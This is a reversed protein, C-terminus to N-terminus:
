AVAGAAALAVTALHRSNQECKVCSKKKTSVICQCMGREAKNWKKRMALPKKQKLACEIIHINNLPRPYIDISIYVRPYFLLDLLICLLLLLLLILSPSVSSTVCRNNLM